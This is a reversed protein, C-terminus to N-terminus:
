SKKKLKSKLKNIEFVHGAELLYQYIGDTVRVASKNQTDVTFDAVSEYIPMREKLVAVTEAVLNESTLPPRVQENGADRKLREVIDALPAKLCVLVGMKKLLDRNHEALIVGGGTAVVCSMQRGLSMVAKTERERFKEWGELAVVEKIPMGAADEILQDTDVFPIKLKKSLLLGVTSKGTARYGILIIKM